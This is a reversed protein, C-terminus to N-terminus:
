HLLTLNGTPNGRVLKGNVDVTNASATALAKFALMQCLRRDTQSAQSSRSIIYNALIFLYFPEHATPSAKMWAM